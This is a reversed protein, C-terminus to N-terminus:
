KKPTQLVLELAIDEYPLQETYLSAVTFDIFRHVGSVAPLPVPQTNLISSYVEPAQEVTYIGLSTTPGYRLNSSSGPVLLSCGIVLPVSATVRRLIVQRLYILSGSPIYLNTKVRFHGQESSEIYITQQEMIM